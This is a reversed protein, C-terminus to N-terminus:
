DLMKAIDSASENYYTLIQNLNKHGTMRALTIADIKGAAVIRTIAEHRTDHFHLDDLGAAKCVRSFVTGAVVKNSKFVRSGRKPMTALLEVARRSLPVDRNSGNKTQDLHVYRQELFVRDWTLSWIEGLRMATEIALLFGIAVEQKTTSPPQVEVYDLAVLLAEIESNTIRRDRAKGAKPLIVGRMPNQTIYEWRVCQTLVASLISAERRVSNPLVESARQDIWAQLHRMHLDVLRHQAVPYRLLANIRIAEWRSGRKRPTIEKVYQQLAESFTINQQTLGYKKQQAQSEQRAAWQSALSKTPFTKSLRKGQILVFARYTAGKKNEIKKISAMKLAIKTCNEACIHM